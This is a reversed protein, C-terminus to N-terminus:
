KNNLEFAQNLKKELTSQIMKKFPYLMLPLDLIICVNSEKHNSQSPTVSFSVNLHKSKINITDKLVECQYNSDWKKMEKSVEPDNVMVYKLKEFAVKSDVPLTRNIQVKSM